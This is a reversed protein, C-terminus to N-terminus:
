AALLRGQEEPLPAPEGAQEPEVAHQTQLHERGLDRRREPDRHEVHGTADRQRRLDDHPHKRLHLQLPAVGVVGVFADGAGHLPREVLEVLLPVDGYHALSRGRVMAAMSRTVPIPPTKWRAPCAPRRSQYASCRPMSTESHPALCNSHVGPPEVVQDTKSWSVSYKPRGSWANMTFKRTASRSAM